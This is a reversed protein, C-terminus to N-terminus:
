KKKKSHRREEKELYSLVLKSKERVSRKLEAYKLREQFLEDAINLAALMVLKQTSVPRAASRVEEIGKSVYSALTRVYTEDAEAKLRYLDGQIKVEISHSM